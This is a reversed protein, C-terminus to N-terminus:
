EVIMSSLDIELKNINALQKEGKIICEPDTSHIDAEITVAFKALFEIEMKTKTISNHMILVNQVEKWTNKNAKM